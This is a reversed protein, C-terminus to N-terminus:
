ALLGVLGPAAAPALRTSLFGGHPLVGGATGLDNPLLLYAGLLILGLLLPFLRGPGAPSDRRLWGDAGMCAGLLLFWAVVILSLPLTSGAHYEFLEGDIAELRAALRPERNGALIAQPRDVLRRWVQARLFGTQEFYAMALCAAPLAALCILLPSSARRPPVLVATALAGLVALLFGALHTFYAATFLLMLVAAQPLHLAGRRRLCYGLILWLLVLSLCYNYFGLWFCRNYLFLLGAWSLPRCREGFGGLFYRFAGAFGLLYLSVLIKEAGLAPFLYLLAALLLHSTWNPLPQARVEFLNELGAASNRYGRLIQANALHSPGDQTPLYHFAWVPVLHLLALLWFAMGEAHRSLWHRLRGGASLDELPELTPAAMELSPNFGGVIMRTGAVL